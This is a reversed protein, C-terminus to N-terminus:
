AAEAIGNEADMADLDFLGPMTVQNEAAKLYHCGDM